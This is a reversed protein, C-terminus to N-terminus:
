LLSALNNLVACCCPNSLPVRLWTNLDWTCRLVHSCHKVSTTTTGNLSLVLLLCPLLSLEWTLVTHMSFESSRCMDTRPVTDICVAMFAHTGCVNYTRNSVKHPVHKSVTCTFRPNLCQAHFHTEPCPAAHVTIQSLICSIHKRSLATPLTNQSMTCLSHEPVICMFHAKLCHLQFHTRPPVLHPFPAQPDAGWPM